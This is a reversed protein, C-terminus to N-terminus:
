RPQMRAPGQSNADFLGGQLLPENARGGVRVIRGIWRQGFIHILVKRSPQHDVRPTRVSAPSSLSPKRGIRSLARVHLTWSQRQRSPGPSGQSM